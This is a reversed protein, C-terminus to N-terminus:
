FGGGTRFGGRSSRSRGSRWTATRRTQPHHRKHHGIPRHRRNNELTAWLDVGSVVGSILGEIAASILRDNSFTSQSSDFRHQKFNRRVKELETLKRTQQVHSRRLTSTLDELEFQGEKLIDLQEVLHDDERTNTRLSFRHLNDIDERQLTDTIMKLCASMHSDTGKAYEAEQDLLANLAKEAQDFERDIKAIVVQQQEVVQSAKEYESGTITTQEIAQLESQKDQAIQQLYEAHQELRKPIEQLNWYNARAKDYDCLSAVWNDLWRFLPNASYDSTGYHRKWLYMFLKEKEYVVAKQRLDQSATQKKERASQAVVQANQAAAAAAQYATNADLESTIDQEALDQKQILDDLITQENARQDIHTNVISEAQIIDNKLASFEANRKALRQEITSELHGLAGVTEDNAITNLRLRALQRYIVAQERSNEAIKDSINKLEDNIRTLEHRSRQHATNLQGLTQHGTLM